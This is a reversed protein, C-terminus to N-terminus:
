AARILVVSVGDTPTEGIISLNESASIFRISPTDLPEGNGTNLTGTDGLYVPNSNTPLAKVLFLGSGLAPLPVATNATAIVARGFPNSSAPVDPVTRVVLGRAATGPEAVTVDIPNDSGDRLLTPQNQSASAQNSLTTSITGLTTNGTGQLAATAQSDLKTSIDALTTNGTGQLDATAQSDLKTSIEGLTTNGTGQLTATSADSALVNATIEGTVPVRGSMLAPLKNSIAQLFDIAYRLLSNVPWQGTTDTATPSDITGVHKRLGVFDKPDVQTGAEGDDKVWTNTAAPDSSKSQLETAM